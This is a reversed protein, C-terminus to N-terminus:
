GANTLSPGRHLPRPHFWSTKIGLRDFFNSYALRKGGRRRVPGSFHRRTLGEGGYSVWGAALPMWTLGLPACFRNQRGNCNEEHRGKALAQGM